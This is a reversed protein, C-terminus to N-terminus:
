HVISIKLDSYTTKNEVVFILYALPILSQYRVKLGMEYRGKVAQPQGPQGKAENRLQKLASLSTFECLSWLSLKNLRQM